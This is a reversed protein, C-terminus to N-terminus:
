NRRGDIKGRRFGFQESLELAISIGWAGMLWAVIKLGLHIDVMSASISLSFSGIALLRSIWFM